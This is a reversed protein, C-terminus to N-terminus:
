VFQYTCYQTYRLWSVQVLLTTLLTHGRWLVKHYCIAGNSLSSYYNRVHRHYQIIIVPFYQSCKTLFASCDHFIDSIIFRTFRCLMAILKLRLILRCQQKLAMFLNALEFCLSPYSKEDYLTSFNGHIESILWMNLFHIPSSM